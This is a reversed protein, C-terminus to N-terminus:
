CFCLLVLLCLLMVCRNWIMCVVLVVVNDVNDLMGVSILNVYLVFMICLWLWVLVVCLGCLIWWVNVLIGVCLSDISVLVFFIVYLFLLRFCVCVVSLLVMYLSSLVLVCGIMSLLFCLIVNLM